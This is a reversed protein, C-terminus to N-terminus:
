TSFSGMLDLRQPPGLTELSSQIAGHLIRIRSNFLSLARFDDLGVMCGAGGGLEECDSGRSGVFDPHLASNQQNQHCPRLGM